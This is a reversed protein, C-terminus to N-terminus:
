HVDLMDFQPHRFIKNYRTSSSPTEGGEMNQVNQYRRLRLRHEEKLKELATFLEKKGQSCTVPQSASGQRENAM